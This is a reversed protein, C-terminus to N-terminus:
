MIPSLPVRRLDAGPPSARLMTGKGRGILARSAAPGAGSCRTTPLAPRRCARLASSGAAASPLGGQGGRAPLRALGLRGGRPARRAGLHPQERQPPFAPRRQESRARGRTLHVACPWQVCGPLASSTSCGVAPQPGGVCGTALAPRYDAACPRRPPTRSGIMGCGLSANCGPTFVERAIADQGADLGPWGHVPALAAPDRDQERQPPFPVSGPGTRQPPAHTGGRVAIV